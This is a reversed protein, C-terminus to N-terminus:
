GKDVIVRTSGTIIFNQNLWQADETFIRVCGHSANYGPIEDSGHLAFGSKFFMCYPIPAGGNPVPFESSECNETGKRYITFEGAPTTCKEGIDPCFSRGTSAPGWRVMAGNEDYAAWALGKTSVLITKYDQPAINEPFPLLNLIDSASMKDPNVLQMGPYLRTNIRNIRMAMNQQAENPWLSTWTDNKKVVICTLNADSHCLRQGYTVTYALSRQFPFFLFIIFLFGTLRSM